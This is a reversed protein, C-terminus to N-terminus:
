PQLHHTTDGLNKPPYEEYKECMTNKTTTLQPHFIVRIGVHSKQTDHCNAFSVLCM